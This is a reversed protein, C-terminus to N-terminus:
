ISHLTIYISNNDELSKFHDYLLQCSWLYIAYLFRPIILDSGMVGFLM